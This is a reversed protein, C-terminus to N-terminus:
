NMAKIIRLASASFPAPDLFTVNGNRIDGRAFTTKVGLRIVPIGRDEFLKILPSAPRTTAEIGASVLLEIQDLPITDGTVSIEDLDDSAEVLLIMRPPDSDLMDMLAKAEPSTPSGTLLDAKIDVSAGNLTDDGLANDPNLLTVTTTAPLDISQGLLERRVHEVLWQARPTTDSIGSLLLVPRQPGEGFTDAYIPLKNASRGLDFADYGPVAAMTSLQTLVAPLDVPSVPLNAASWVLGEEIGRQFAGLQQEIARREGADFEATIIGKALTLGVWSGMSGPRSGLREAPFGSERAMAQALEKAPGDYDLTPVCCHMSIVAEPSTNQILKYLVTSEDESLASPGGGASPDFNDSPFNRNLDIDNANRRTNLLIGDPNTAQMFIVRVGVRQALGGMLYARAREGYTVASRESGHIAALLFVIPGQTGYLEVQMPRGQESTGLVWAHQTLEDPQTPDMDMMGSMDIPQPLDPQSMDRPMDPTATMDPTTTMDAAMDPMANNKDPDSVDVEDPGCASLALLALLTLTKASNALSM